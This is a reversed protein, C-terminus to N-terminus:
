DERGADDVTSAPTHGVVMPLSAQRDASRQATTQKVQALWYGVSAEMSRLYPKPYIGIWIMLIVIPVMYAIERGNLDGIRANEPKDLEGFMVRQFAWLMYAAGLIIGLVAFAAWLYSTKFAGVLILFEGIFGNLGPLGISSFMTIGFFAAFVPMSKALGGYDAIMRTHRREYIMGVILFLAGTSLGHNIMQLIAGQVGEPTLTFIGLMVFGLHSVSSYAVLKKLDPQAMAVLAGYIIGVISLFVMLPIFTQSAEPFLPLSFRLFGYTGMKLLVGALIVSGATPAEVHADPLWTHFPFMPVKIAFALFFALFLWVQLSPDINTRLLELFNFTLVGTQAYHLFYLALIALLMFVSGFLTYLFFKIAAYLKRPGGWIGILFYMPVLMVEWFVYFLFFDLAMFVGLMGTQLFLLSFYYEKEREEIATFSCVIAIVGLLTTLFILLLSIGDVGLFYEVGIADIWRAQEVFQFQHTSTDFAFLIPLAVLFDLATVAFAVSKISQVQERGLFFIIFLAGALPIFVTLSLIPFGGFAHPAIM